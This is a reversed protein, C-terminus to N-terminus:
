SRGAPGAARRRDDRRDPAVDIGRRRAVVAETALLDGPVARREEGRLQLPSESPGWSGGAYEYRYRDWLLNLGASSGLELLELPKETTRAVTLFLPLLAWCRQPENTQITRERVFERVWESREAVIARFAEWPEVAERYDPVEAGLVLYEVAALLRHPVDWSPDAPILSRVLPDAAARRM